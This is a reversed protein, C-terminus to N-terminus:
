EECEKCDGCSPYTCGYLIRTDIDEPSEVGATNSGSLEGVFKIFDAGSLKQAASIILREQSVAM